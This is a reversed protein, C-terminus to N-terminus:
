VDREREREIPKCINNLPYNCTRRCSDNHVCGGPKPWVLLAVLLTREVVGAGDLQLCNPLDAEWKMNAVTQSPELYCVMWYKKQAM